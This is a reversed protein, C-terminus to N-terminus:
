LPRDYLRYTKYRSFNMRRLANNMAVNDELIWSAEAWCMGHRLAREWIRSWLLADIGKGRFEPRIGLLLVRVRPIKKRRLAWLLRPAVPLLRGSRNGRLVHNIDPVAMTFGVVEGDKEALPVLEPVILPKLQGTMHHIEAPTLPVFGWNEAWCANYIERIRAAEEPLRSLDLARLTVGSRRGLAGAARMAREPLRELGSSVGSRYAWLDKVKGFGACELLDAYYPPNHPTMITPATDFGDVLLGCEHNLSYSAPGRLTDFGRDRAWAAAADLLEAAVRRDDACDFFGFFAVRDRHRENHLRNAIAAVRGVAEGGREALFLAADGHEFFPNNKRTLLARVEGRLPPVWLPDGRHMRYPLDIFTRLDRPGQVSRVAV